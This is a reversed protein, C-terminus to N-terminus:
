VPENIAGKARCIYDDLDQLDYRVARVLRVVPLIGRNSMSWLKRESISLYLAAAKPKILRPITATANSM